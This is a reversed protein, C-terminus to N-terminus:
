ASKGFAVGRDRLGFLLEEAGFAQTPTLAGIRDFGEAAALGACLAASAATFAYGDGATVWATKVQGDGGQAEAVVATRARSRMLATPGEPLLDMGKNLLDRVWGSSLARLFPAGMRILSVAAHPVAVFVQVNRASTTRPATALDGWPVSVCSRSGIPEPLPAEWLHQGVREEVWQGDRYTLGQGQSQGQGQGNLMDLVSRVTGLSPGSGQVAFAIRVREPRGGSLAGAALAAAADTPVVDFGVANVLAVGAARAEEDRQYTERMFPHEGTIDLYHARGALAADVVQRGYRCFPGACSLVVKTSQAMRLLAEPDDLAAVIVPIDGLALERRQAELRARNRGAMAFATGNRHLEECLLRGTYGTAGYVVIPHDRM